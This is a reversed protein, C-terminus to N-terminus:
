QRVPLKPFNAKQNIQSGHMPSAKADSAMEIMMSAIASVTDANAHWAADVDGVLLMDQSLAVLRAAVDEMQRSIEIRQM